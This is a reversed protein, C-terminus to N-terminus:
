PTEGSTPQAPPSEGPETLDHVDAREVQSFALSRLPLADPFPHGTLLQFQESVEVLLVDWGDIGILGRARTASM